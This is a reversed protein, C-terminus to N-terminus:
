QSTRQGSLPPACPPPLQPLQKPTRNAPCSMPDATTPRRHPPSPTQSKPAVQDRPDRRKVWPPTATHSERPPIPVSGQVPGGLTTMERPPGMCPGYENPPPLPNSPPLLYNHPGPGPHARRLSFPSWPHARARSHVKVSQFCHRPERLKHIFALWWLAILITRAHM